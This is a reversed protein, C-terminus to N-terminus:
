MTSTGAVIVGVSALAASVNDLFAAKMNLSTKSGAFVLVATVVDIILAIGAVVVIIWGTTPQPDLFRTIAEYILYLGVIILTTLNILAAVVEARGYGFTM